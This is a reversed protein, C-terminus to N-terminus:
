HTSRRFDGQIVNETPPTTIYRAWDDMLARRKEFIDGRWYAAEAGDAVKHALAMECVERPYHTREAAWDRFTSRFGHMTLDKRGIRRLGMLMAMNSLHKGKRTSPFLYPSGAIRPLSNLVNVTAESLPVRHDKGAKM